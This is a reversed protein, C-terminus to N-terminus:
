PPFGRLRTGHRQRIVRLTRQLATGRSLGRGMYVSLAVFASIGILLVGVVMVYDWWQM